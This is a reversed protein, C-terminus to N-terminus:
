FPLYGPETEALAIRELRPYTKLLGEPVRQKKGTVLSKLEIANALEAGKYHNNGIVVFHGFSEALQTLREKIQVLEEPKYYYNYTEDRGAESFWAGYNRGHLRLYGERGITCQALSFSNNSMPYDLNCVSVGLGELFALAEPAEWSRHRVEVVLNFAGGLYGVIGSLRQRTQTGDAFDYRFQALIHKLRGAELLPSFGEHFQRAMEQDLRGEHTFSQHLKATFFFGEQDLTRELWSQTTRAFPPRYFTSNIEICDVFQSVYALQDMKSRTYVIGKWDPYSWGAIGIHIPCSM